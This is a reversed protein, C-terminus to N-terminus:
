SIPEHHLDGHQCLSSSKPKQTIDIGEETAPQRWHKWLPPKKLITRQCGVCKCSFDSKLEILEVIILTFISAGCKMANLSFPVLLIHSIDLWEIFASSLIAPFTLFADHRFFPVSSASTYIFFL